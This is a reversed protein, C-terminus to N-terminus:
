GLQVLLRLAAFLVLFSFFRQLRSAKARGAGYRSGVYGGVLCISGFILFQKIDMGGGGLFHSILASGSSVFIYASTLAAIRKMHSWGLTLIVPGLVIGGGIGVVGSFVGIALGIALSLSWHKGSDEGGDATGTRIWMRVAIVLLTVGLIWRFTEAGIPIRAGLAGGVAGGLLFPWSFKFSFHGQKWYNRFGV